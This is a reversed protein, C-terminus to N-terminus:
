VPFGPRHRLGDLSKWTFHSWVRDPRTQYFLHTKHLSVAYVLTQCSSEWWLTIHPLHSHVLRCSDSRTQLLRVPTINPAVIEMYHQKLSPWFLRISFIQKRLSLAYGLTQHPSEWWFIIRSSSDPPSNQPPQPKRHRPSTANQLPIRLWM